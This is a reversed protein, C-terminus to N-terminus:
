VMGAVNGGGKKLEVFLHLETTENKNERYIKHSKNNSHCPFSDCEPLSCAM